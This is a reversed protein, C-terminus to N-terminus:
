LAGLRVLTDKSIRKGCRTPAIIGFININCKVLASLFLSEMQSEICLGTTNDVKKCNSQFKFNLEDIMM